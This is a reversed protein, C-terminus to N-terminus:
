PCQVNRAASFWVLDSIDDREDFYYDVSYHYGAAVPYRQSFLLVDTSTTWLGDGDIDASNFLLLLPGNTLPSGSVMVYTKGDNTDNGDNSYDVHGGAYFPGSFTTMGNIDTSADAITGNPCAVLGAPDGVNVPPVAPPNELWIDEFPYAFVPNSGSDLLTVTITADEETSYPGPAPPVPFIPARAETMLSGSGDPTNYVNVNVGVPANLMTCSSTDLDPIGAFGLTTVGMAAICILLGVINKRLM